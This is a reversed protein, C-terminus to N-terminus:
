SWSPTVSLRTPPGANVANTPGPIAAARVMEFNDPVPLCQAAPAACYEAYGGGSVLACVHDGLQIETVGDGIAVVVGAIELGPIDSAGPPPPYNGRRQMVDPFNVGAAVVKVLVEGDGPTPVARIGPKLAEPGGPDIIEIATMETPVETTM